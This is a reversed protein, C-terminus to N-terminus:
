CSDDRYLQHASVFDTEQAQRLQQEANNRIADSPSITAELVASVDM